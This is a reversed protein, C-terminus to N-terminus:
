SLVPDHLVLPVSDSESERGNTAMGRCEHSLCDRFSRMAVRKMGYTPHTQRRSHESAGAIVEGFRGVALVNTRWRTQRVSVSPRATAVGM